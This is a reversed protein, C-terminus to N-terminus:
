KIAEIIVCEKEVAFGNFFDHPEQIHTERITSFNVSRIQEIIDDTNSLSFGFRTVPMKELIHRPRVALVMRGGLALVRYIESFEIEPKPWFYYTNVALVAQVSQDDLPIQNANAEKFTARAAAVWAHNLESAAAVMEPAYDIGTYQITYGLRLIQSVFYGNAMGIELIHEADQPNLVALAHRNMPGNGMNMMEAVKRGQLGEPKRLHAALVKQEEETM